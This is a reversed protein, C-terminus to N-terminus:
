THQYIYNCVQCPSTSTSTRIKHITAPSDYTQSASALVALKIPTPPETVMAEAVIPSMETSCGAVAQFPVCFSTAVEESTNTYKM